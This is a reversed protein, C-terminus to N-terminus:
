NSCFLREQLRGSCPCIFLSRFLLLFCVSAYLPEAAAVLHVNKTSRAGALITLAGNCPPMWLLYVGSGPAFRDTASCEPLRILPSLCWVVTEITVPAYPGTRTDAWSCRSCRDSSSWFTQGITNIKQSDGNLAGQEDDTRYQVATYSMNRGDAVRPLENPKM